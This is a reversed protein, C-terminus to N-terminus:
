KSLVPNETIITQERKIISCQEFHVIQKDGM